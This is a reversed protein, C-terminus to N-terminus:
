EVFSRVKSIVRSSVDPLSSTAFEDFLAGLGSSSDTHASVSPVVSGVRRVNLAYSLCSAGLTRLPAVVAPDIVVHAGVVLTQRVIAQSVDGWSRLEALLIEVASAVDSGLVEIPTGDFQPRQGVEIFQVDSLSGNDNFSHVVYGRAGPSDSFGRRVLSGSYWVMDGWIDPRVSGSSHIHGLMVADFVGSEVIGSSIPVERVARAVRTYDGSDPDRLSGHASLVNLGDVRTLSALDGLAGDDLGSFMHHSVLHLVGVGGPLEVTRLPTVSSFVNDTPRHLLENARVDGRVDTVDHNGALIFVPIGALGLKLFGEQAVKRARNSPNPDHFVDGAVVVCNIDGRELISSVVNMFAKYGDLERVNIGTESASYASYGLHLDAIHAIKYM